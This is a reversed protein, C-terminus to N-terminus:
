RRDTPVLFWRMATTLVTSVLFVMGTVILMVKIATAVLFPLGVTEWVLAVLWLVLSALPWIDLWLSRRRGGRSSQVAPCRPDSSGSTSRASGGTRPSARPTRACGGSPRGVSARTQSASATIIPGSM